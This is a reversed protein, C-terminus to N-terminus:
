NTLEYIRSSHARNPPCQDDRGVSVVSVTVKEGRRVARKIKRVFSKGIPVKLRRPVNARLALRLPGWILTRGPGARGIAVAGRTGVDGDRNLVFRVAFRDVDQRKKGLVRMEPFTPIRNRPDDCPRRGACVAPLVANEQGRTPGAVGARGCAQRQVSLGAPVSDYALCHIQPETFIGESEWCVRGAGPALAIPGADGGPGLVFPTTRSPFPYPPAYTQRDVLNDASDYSAVSYSGGRYQDNAPFVDLLEVFAEGPGAPYIENVRMSEDSPWAAPAWLLAVAIALALVRLTV